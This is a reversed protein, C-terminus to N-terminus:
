RAARPPIRPDRHSSHAARSRAPRRSGRRGQRACWAEFQAFDTLYAKRTSSARSDAAYERAREVLQELPTISAPTALALATEPKSM